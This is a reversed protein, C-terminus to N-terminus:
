RAVGTHLRERPAREDVVRLTDVDGDEPDREVGRRRVTGARSEPRLPHAGSRDREARVVRRLTSLDESRERDRIEAVHVHCGPVRLSGDPLDRLSELRDHAGSRPREADAAVVEDHEALEPRLRGDM